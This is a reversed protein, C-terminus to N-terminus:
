QRNVFRKTTPQIVVVAHRGCCHCRELVFSYMSSITDCCCDVVFLSSWILHFFTKMVQKLM